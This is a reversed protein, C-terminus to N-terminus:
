GETEQTLQAEVELWREIFSHFRDIILKGQSLDVEWTKQIWERLTRILTEILNKVQWEVDSIQLRDIIAQPDIKWRYHLLLLLQQNYNFLQWAIELESYFYHQCYEMLCDDFPKQLQQIIEDAPKDAPILDPDATQVAQIFALLSLRKYRTIARSGKSQSEIGLQVGLLQVIDTQTIDLGINLLLILQISATQQSFQQENAAKALTYVEFQELVDLPNPIFNDREQYIKQLLIDSRRYTRIAKAYSQLRLLIDQPEILETVAHRSRQQVYHEIITQLQTENPPPLSNTGIQRTKYGYKFSKWLLLASALSSSRWGSFKLAALLETEAVYRLLGWDSFDQFDITQQKIKDKLKSKLVTEAYTKLQVNARALQFNELLKVPHNAQENLIQFCDDLTYRDGLNAPVIRKYYFEKAIYWCSKQLHAILFQRSRTETQWFEQVDPQNLRVLLHQYICLVSQNSEPPYGALSQVESELLARDLHRLRLLFYRAWADIAFDTHEILLQLLYKLEPNSRWVPKILGHHDTPICFTSFARVIEAPSINM